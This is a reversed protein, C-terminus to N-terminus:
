YRRCRVADAIEVDVLLAAPAPRRRAAEELRHEVPRIQPQLGAHQDFPQDNSPPRATPTRNRWSPSTTSARVCPRPSGTRGARDARGCIRCSEPTPGASQSPAARCRRRARCARADPAVQLVMQLLARDVLDLAHPREVLGIMRQQPAPQHPEFIRKRRRPGSVMAGDCSPM